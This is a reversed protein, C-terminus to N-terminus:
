QVYNARTETCLGTFNAMCTLEHSAPLSVSSLHHSNQTRCLSSLLSAASGRELWLMFRKTPPAMEMTAVTHSTDVLQEKMRGAEMATKEDIILKRKRLKRVVTDTGIRVTTRHYAAVKKVKCCYLVPLWLV